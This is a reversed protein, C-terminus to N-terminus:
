KPREEVYEKWTEGTLLRQKVVVTIIVYQEQGLGLAKAHSEYDGAWTYDTWKRTESYSHVVIVPNWAVLGVACAAIILLTVILIKKM